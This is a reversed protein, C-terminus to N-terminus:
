VHEQAAAAEAENGLALDMVPGCPASLIRGCEDEGNSM